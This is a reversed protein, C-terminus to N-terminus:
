SGSSKEGDFPVLGDAGRAAGGFGLSFLSLLAGAVLRAWGEIDRSEVHM